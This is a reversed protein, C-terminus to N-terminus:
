DCSQSPWTLVQLKKTSLWNKVLRSIHKPDNFHQFIRNRPMKHGAYPLLNKELINKYIVVNMTGDINVLPGVGYASFVSWVM